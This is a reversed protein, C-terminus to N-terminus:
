TRQACPGRWPTRRDAHHQHAHWVHHNGLFQGLQSGKSHPPQHFYVIKWPQNAAQLDAELWQTLPTNVGQIWPGLESNLSVFHINGYDFSYYMEGGSAIGGAEGNTPVEVISYYPVPIRPLFGNQNVSGYDHNGPTPWFIQSDFLSDFVNFVKETYESDTGTDYANDGLWLWVDAPRDAKPSAYTAIVSWTNKLM